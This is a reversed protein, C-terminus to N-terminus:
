ADVLLVPRLQMVAVQLKKLRITSLLTSASCIFHGFIGAATSTHALMAKTVIVGAWAAISLM